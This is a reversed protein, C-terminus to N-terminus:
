SWEEATLPTGFFESLRPVLATYADSPLADDIVYIQLNAIRYQNTTDQSATSAAADIDTNLLGYGGLIFLGGANASDPWGSVQNVAGYTLLDMKSGGGFTPDITGDFYFAADVTTDNYDILFVVRMWAGGTWDACAHIGPGPNPLGDSVFQFNYNDAVTDPVVRLTWGKYNELNLNLGTQGFLYFAAGGVDPAGAEAYFDFAFICSRGPKTVHFDGLPDTSPIMHCNASQPRYGEMKLVNNVTPVTYPCVMHNGNGSADEWLTSSPGRGWFKLYPSLDSTKISKATIM